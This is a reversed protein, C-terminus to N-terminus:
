DSTNIKMLKKIEDFPLNPFNLRLKILFSKKDKVRKPNIAAHFTNINKLPYRM